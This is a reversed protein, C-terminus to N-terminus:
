IYRDYIKVDYTNIIIMILLNSRDTKASPLLSKMRIHGARIEASRCTLVIQKKVRSGSIDLIGIYFDGNWRSLEQTFLGYPSRRVSKEKIWNPNKLILM